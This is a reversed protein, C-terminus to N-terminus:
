NEVKLVLDVATLEFLQRVKGAANALVLEVGNRRAQDAAMMIMSLGVSDMFELGKLDIVFRGGTRRGVDEIVPVFQEQGAVTFRGALAVRDGGQGPSVSFAATADMAPSNAEGPRRRVTVTSSIHFQDLLRLVIDRPHALTLSRGHARASESAKLLLGIGFSDAYELDGMEITVAWKANSEFDDLIPHFAHGDRFTLRGSLRYTRGGGDDVVSMEM